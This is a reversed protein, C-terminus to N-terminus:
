DINPSVTSAEELALAAAVKAFCLLTLTHLALSFRVSAETMVMNSIVMMDVTEMVMVM